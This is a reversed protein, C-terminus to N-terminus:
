MRPSDSQGWGVSCGSGQGVKKRRFRRRRRRRGLRPTLGEAEAKREDRDLDIAENMRGAFLQRSEIPLARLPRKVRNHLGSMALYSNRRVLVSNTVQKVGLDASHRLAEVMWDTLGRIMAFNVPIAGSVKANGPNRKDKKIKHLKEAEKMHKRIAMLSWEMSSCIALQARAVREVEEWHRLTCVPPPTEPVLWAMDQDVRAPGDVQFETSHLKYHNINFGPCRPRSMTVGRTTTKKDATIIRLEKNSCDVDEDPVNAKMGQVARNHTIFSQRVSTSLPFVVYDPENKRPNRRLQCPDPSTERVPPLPCVESGLVTYVWKRSERLPIAKGKKVVHRNSSATKNHSNPPLSKSQLRQLKPPMKLKFVPRKQTSLSQATRNATATATSSQKSMNPNSPPMHQASSHAAKATTIAAPIAERLKVIGDTLSSTCLPQESTNPVTQPTQSPGQTTPSGQSLRRPPAGAAAMASPIKPVFTGCQQGPFSVPLPGQNPEDKCIVEQRSDGRYESNPYLCTHSDQAGGQSSQTLDRNAHKVDKKHYEKEHKGKYIAMPTKEAYISSKEKASDMQRPLTHHRRHIPPPSQMLRTHEKRCDYFGHADNESRRSQRPSKVAKSQQGGSRTRSRREGRQLCRSDPERRGRPSPWTHSPYRKYHPSRTRVCRRRSPSRSRVGPHHSPSRSRMGPHHSPSRSRVYRRRSPSRSRMGRHHSPSRSRMYQHRSPSRSSVCPHHSPSRSRVGTHHSPSSSRMGLHHPPSRSRMYRHRSLSRSSVGQHHSPLRSKMYPHRSPSRSRVGPHRSPSRSRMYQHRSPSRSSVCPHHSPSRSRVGPHHSSSSSRIGLHHSPSRSRMYRHHSPSRSRIGPHHSPSRSWIYRHHSPSRSSVGPHHSPSRSRLGPHRSPSRSMVYRRRSPSRSRVGPHHSSSSSRIGLHHSPSRSRMYRHHSPSRSRIGPHHSPSRSRMYRHHSPSRSSVGPHHSPSMSRLGPHRSPSRSMVYRRRSPSRSRVGPHHSPPRSRVYRRRSPSRSRVYRCRSPSRSRVYRRRSPSRSRVGSHHSPSRSRAGSGPIGRYTSNSWKTQNQIVVDQTHEGESLVSAMNVISAGCSPVQPPSSVGKTDPGRQRYGLSVKSRSLAAQLMQTVVTRGSIEEEEQIVELLLTHDQDSQALRLLTWFPGALHTSTEGEGSSNGTKTVPAPGARTHSKGKSDLDHSTSSLPQAPSLSLNRRPGKHHSWRGDAHPALSATHPSVTHDGPPFEVVGTGQEDLKPISVMTLQGQFPGVLKSDPTRPAKAPLPANDRSSIAAGEATVSSIEKKQSRGKSLGARWKKFDLESYREVESPGNHPGNGSVPVSDRRSIPAVQAESTQSPGMAPGARGKMSQTYRGSHPTDEPQAVQIQSVRFRGSEDFSSNPVHPTYAPVPGGNIAQWYLVVTHDYM